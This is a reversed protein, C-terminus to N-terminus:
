PLLGIYSALILLATAIIATFTLAMGAVRFRFDEKVQSIGYAHACRGILLVGALGHIAISGPRQLELMLILILAIPVYEAFNAHARVARALAPEDGSGIAVSFRHRFRLTRISLVVFILAFIAAYAPTTLQMAFAENLTNPRM